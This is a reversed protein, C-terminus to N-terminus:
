RTSSSTPWMKDPISFFGILRKGVSLMSLSPRQQIAELNRGHCMEAILQNKFNPRDDRPTMSLAADIRIRDEREKGM